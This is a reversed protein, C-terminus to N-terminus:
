FECVTKLLCSWVCNQFPSIITPVEHEEVLHSTKVFQLIIM